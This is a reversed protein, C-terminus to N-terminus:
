TREGKHDNQDFGDIDSPLDWGAGPEGDLDAPVQGAIDDVRRQIDTWTTIDPAPGTAALAELRATRWDAEAARLEEFATRYSRGVETSLKERFQDVIDDLLRRAHERAVTRQEETKSDAKGEAVIAAIASGGITFAAPMGVGSAFAIVAGLVGGVATVVRILTRRRRLDDLKLDPLDRIAVPSVQRTATSTRTVTFMRAVESDLWRLDRSITDSIQSELAHTLSKLERRLRVPLEREWWAKIDTVRHLEVDLNDFLESTATTVSDRVVEILRLRREDLGLRLQNWQLDDGDLQQKAALVAAHRGAEDERLQDAAAQAASRIAQCADALQWALRRDRRRIVDSSHALDSVLDRLDALAAAGAPAPGPGVVVAIGPSVEAIRAKFWAVFDEIEAAPLQDVKTLAVVVRPVRKTLLEEELFQRELLSLPSPASIAMIVVDSLAVARQTQLLHDVRGGHLGPTDILEVEVRSLWQSPTWLLLRPEAPGAQGEGVRVASSEHDLMLGHWPDDATLSRREAAGSPWRVDLVAPGVALPRVVVFARTLPVSGTPLVDAGLLRNVLTSKGRSFDGVVAVRGGPRDREARNDRLRVAVNELGADAAVREAARVLDRLDAPDM